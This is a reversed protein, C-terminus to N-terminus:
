ILYDPIEIEQMYLQLFYIIETLILFIEISKFLGIGGGFITLKLNLNPM